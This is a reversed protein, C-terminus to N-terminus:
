QVLILQGNEITRIGILGNPPQFTLSEVYILEIDEMTIPDTMFRPTFNLVDFYQQSGIEFSDIETMILDILEQSTPWYLPQSINTFLSDDMKRFGYSIPTVDTTELDQYQNYAIKFELDLETSSYILTKSLQCAVGEPTSSIQCENYSESFEVATLEFIYQIQNEDEFVLSENEIDDSISWQTIDYNITECDRCSIPDCANFTMLILVCILLGSTKM